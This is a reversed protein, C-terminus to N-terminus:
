KRLLRWSCATAGHIMRPTAAVIADAASVLASSPCFNVADVAFCGCSQPRFSLESPLDHSTYTDLPTRRKQACPLPGFGIKLPYMLLFFVSEFRSNIYKYTLM